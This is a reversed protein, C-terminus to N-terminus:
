TQDAHEDNNETDAIALPKRLVDELLEPWEEHWFEIRTHTLLIPRGEAALVLDCVYVTIEGKPEWAKGECYLCEDGDDNIVVTINVPESM